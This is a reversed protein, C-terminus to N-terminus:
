RVHASIPAVKAMQGGHRLVKVDRFSLTELVILIANESFPCHERKEERGVISKNNSLGEEFYTM